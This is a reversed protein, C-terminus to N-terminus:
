QVGGDVRCLVLGMQGKIVRTKMGQSSDEFSTM